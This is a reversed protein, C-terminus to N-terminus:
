PNNPEAGSHRSIPTTSVLATRIKDVARPVLKAEPGDAEINPGLWPEERSWRGWTSKFIAAERALRAWEERGTDNGRTAGELHFLKAHPTYIVRLGAARVRFCFDVDSYTVPMREDIGGVRSWVEKRTALCAGTVASVTGATALHM